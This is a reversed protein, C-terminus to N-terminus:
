GLQNTLSAFAQRKSFCSRSSGVSRNYNVAALEHLFDVGSVAGPPKDMSATGRLRAKMRDQNFVASFM